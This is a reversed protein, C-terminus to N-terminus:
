VICVCKFRYKVCKITKISTKKFSAISLYNEFGEKIFLKNIFLVFYFFIIKRWKKHM